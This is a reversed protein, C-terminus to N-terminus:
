TASRGKEKRAPSVRAAVDHKMGTSKTPALGRMDKNMGYIVRIARAVDVGTAGCMNM